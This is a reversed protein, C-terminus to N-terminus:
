LSDEHNLLSSLLYEKESSYMQSGIAYDQWKIRQTYTQDKEAVDYCENKPTANLVEYLVENPIIAGPPIKDNIAPLIYAQEKSLNTQENTFIVGNIQRTLM